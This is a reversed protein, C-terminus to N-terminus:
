DRQGSASSANWSTSTFRLLKRGDEWSVRLETADLAVLDPQLPHGARAGESAVIGALVTSLVLLGALTRRM